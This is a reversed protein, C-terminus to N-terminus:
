GLTGGVYFRFVSKDLEYRLLKTTNKDKLKISNDKDYVNHAVTLVLNKSILM